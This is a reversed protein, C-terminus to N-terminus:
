RPLIRDPRFQLLHVQVCLDVISYTTAASPNVTTTVTASSNNAMNPDPENARVSAINSIMPVAAATTAITYTFTSSVSAALSQSSCSVTGGRGIPPTTCAWETPATISQFTTNKPLPDSLTVGTATSPGNNTVVVTYTVEGGATVSKADATKTISLDATPIVPAQLSFVGVRNPSIIVGGVEPGALAITVARTLVTWRAPDMDGSIAPVPARKVPDIEMALTGGSAIFVAVPKIQAVAVTALLCLVTPVASRMGARM